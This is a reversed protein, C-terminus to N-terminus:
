REQLRLKWSRWTRWRTNKRDRFVGAGDALRHDQKSAGEQRRLKRSSRRTCRRSSSRASATITFPGMGGKYYHTSPHLFLYSVNLWKAGESRAHFVDGPDRRRYLLAGQRQRSPNFVARLHSSPVDVRGRRRRYPANSAYQSYEDYTKETGFRGFIMKPFPRTPNGLVFVIPRSENFREAPLLARLYEALGKTSFLGPFRLNRLVMSEMTRAMVGTKRLSNFIGMPHPWNVKLIDRYGIRPIEPFYRTHPIEYRRRIFQHAVRHEGKGRADRRHAGRCKLRRLNRDPQSPIQPPFRCHM